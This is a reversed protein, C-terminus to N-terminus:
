FAWNFGVNASIGRQKGAYGTLNVDIAVPNKESLGWTACNM